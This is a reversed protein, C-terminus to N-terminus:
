TMRPLFITYFTTSRDLFDGISMASQNSPLVFKTIGIAISDSQIENGYMFADWYPPRFVYQLNSLNREAPSLDYWSCPEVSPAYIDTGAILASNRCFSITVSFNKGVWQNPAKTPNVGIFCEQTLGASYQVYIAGGVIASNNVFHISTDSLISLSAGAYLAIGGGNTATNSDFINTSEVFFVSCGVVVLGSGVNGFFSNM